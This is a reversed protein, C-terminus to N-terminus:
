KEVPSPEVETERLRERAAIVAEIRETRRLVREVLSWVDEIRKEIRDLRGEVDLEELLDRFNPDNVSDGSPYAVSLTDDPAADIEPYYTELIKQISSEPAILPVIERGVTESILELQEEDTPDEMAVELKENKIAVPVAQCKRALWYPFQRILIDPIHVNLLSICPIDYQRALFAALVNEDIFKLDVLTSGFRKGTRAQEALAVEMQVEDILNSELLM